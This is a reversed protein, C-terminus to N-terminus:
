RSVRCQATGASVVSEVWAAMLWRGTKAGGETQVGGDLKPVLVADIGQWFSQLLLCIHM